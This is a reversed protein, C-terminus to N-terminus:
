KWAKDGERGGKRGAGWGERKWKKREVLGM